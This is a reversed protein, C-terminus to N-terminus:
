RQTAGLAQSGLAASATWEAGPKARRATQNTNTHQLCTHFRIQPGDFIQLGTFRQTFCKSICGNILGRVVFFSQMGLKPLGGMLALM